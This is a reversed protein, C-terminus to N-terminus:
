KYRVNSYCKILPGNRSSTFYEINNTELKSSFLQSTSFLTSMVDYATGQFSSLTTSCGKPLLDTNINVQIVEPQKKKLKGNDDGEKPRPPTSFVITSTQQKGVPVPECLVLLWLNASVKGYNDVKELSYARKITNLSVMIDAKKSSLCLTTSNVKITQRGRPSLCSFNPIEFAYPIKADVDIVNTSSDGASSSSSSSSSTTTTTPVKSRLEAVVLEIVNAFTTMHAEPVNEMMSTIQSACTLGNTAQSLKLMILSQAVFFLFFYTGALNSHRGKRCLSLSLPYLCYLSNEFNRTHQGCQTAEGQTNCV